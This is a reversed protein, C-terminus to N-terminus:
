SIELINEDNISKRNGEKQVARENLWNQKPNLVYKRVNENINVDVEQFQEFVRHRCKLVKLEKSMLQRIENEKM